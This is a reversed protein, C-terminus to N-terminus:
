RALRDAHDARARTSVYVHSPNQRLAFAILVFIIALIILWLTGGGLGWVKLLVPVM